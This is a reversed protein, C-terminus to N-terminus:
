SFQNKAQQKYLLSRGIIVIEGALKECFLSLVVSTNLSCSICLALLKLLGVSGEVDLILIQFACSPSINKM